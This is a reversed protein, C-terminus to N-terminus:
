FNGLLSRFNLYGREGLRNIISTAAVRVESVPMDMAVKLIHRLEKEWGPINWGQKDGEIMKQVCELVEKTLDEAFEALREMVLFDAEVSGAINLAALLNGMAWQRDLMGSGFWWGFNAMEKRHASPARQAEDLRWEWLSCVKQAVEVELPKATNKLSRGIFEIAEGRLRDDAKGYFTKLLQDPGELILRGRWYFTMIHQALHEEARSSRQDGGSGSGIREVAWRYIPVMIEFVNDYPQRFLIYAEWAAKWFRPQNVSFVQFLVQKAWAADLLVLWPFWSGYIARIAPSPEIDIKLHSDLVARVEPTIDFGRELEIKGEEGAAVARRVWLAYSIMSEFARGRVTNIAHQIDNGEDFSSNFGKEDDTTPNPDETLISLIGWVNTRFQPPISGDDDKFGASLINAIANRAWGWDPDANWRDVVRGKITREQGVVWASLDLVYKWDFQLGKGSGEGVGQLIARIYTPDLEFYWSTERLYRQPDRAVIVALERGLGEKSPGFHIMDKQPVWRILYDKLEDPSLAFLEDASKPSNPGRGTTSFVEFEPHEPTELDESLKKYKERWQEPLFESILVLQKLQWSQKFKEVEQASPPTGRERVWYAIRDGLDDPGEEIWGLIQLQSPEDLNRFQEKLLLAYEHRITHDEFMAKNTLCAKVKEACTQPFLRMLHLALRMFISWKRDEFKTILVPLQEPKDSAILQSIDRIASVLISKIGHDDHNQEHDEIAPRWIHSLDYFTTAKEEGISDKLAVELFESFMDVVQFGAKRAFVGINTDIVSQYDTLQIRTKPEALDFKATQGADKPDERPFVALLERSLILAKEVEGQLALHGILNGLREHLVINFPTDIWSIARPVLRAAINGPLGLAAEVLDTRVRVNETVPISLIVDMISAPDSSKKAMRALYQSAPWPIMRVQNGERALQPPSSFVGKAKLPLVWEPNELRDFFYRNQESRSLLAVAKNIQEPTPQKWSKM